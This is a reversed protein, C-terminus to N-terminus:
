FEWNNCKDLGEAILRHLEAVAADDENCRDFLEKLDIGPSALPVVCEIARYASELGPKNHIASLPNIIVELLFAAHSWSNYEGEEYGEYAEGDESVMLKPRLALPHSYPDYTM